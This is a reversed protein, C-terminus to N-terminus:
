ASQYRFVLTLEVWLSLITESFVSVPLVISCYISADIMNPCSALGSSGEVSGFLVVKAKVGGSPSELKLSIMSRSCTFRKNPIEVM